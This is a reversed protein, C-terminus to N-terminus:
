PIHKLFSTDRFLKDPVGFVENVAQIVGPSEKNYDHGAIIGGLKIISKAHKLDNKVYEYRHDGDIYIFDMFPLHEIAEDFTMRMKVVKEGYPFIRIDFSEEAWKMNAYVYKVRDIFEKTGVIEGAISDKWPDIAYLKRVKGSELFMLTSEGAYCGVETMTIGKPLVKILDLLGDSEGRMGSKLRRTYDQTNSKDGNDVIGGISNFQDKTIFENDETKRLIATILNRPHKYFDSDWIKQEILNYKCISALSLFFNKNYHYRCHHPWSGVLPVGHIMLGEKRVMNHVNRFCEYQNGVHETTGYNTLVDFDFKHEIPKSLDFPLSGDKANLDISTHIAAKSAYLLKAPKGNYDQNGLEGVKLGVYSIGLRKLIDEEYRRICEIIAM